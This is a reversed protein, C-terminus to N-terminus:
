RREPRYNEADGGYEKIEEDDECPLSRLNRM